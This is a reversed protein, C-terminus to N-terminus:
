VLAQILNDFKKAINRYSFIDQTEKLGQDAKHKILDQNEYAYRLKEKLQKVSFYVWKKHSFQPYNDMNNYLIFGEPEILTATHENAYEKCGSFNTVIIPVGLMMCQLGPLGFGEGLTPLVLCDFSKLFAPIAADTLISSEFVIPAANDSNINLKQKLNDIDKKAIKIKDTKLVLKVNDNRDFEQLWAEILLLHGKRKKWSGFFLFTFEKNQKLPIVNKNYCKEDLCHPIHYIPRTIGAERFIKKNFESPVIVANNTNLINIWHKPPNNAEYVGFGVSVSSKSKRSQLDPICHLFRIRADSKKNIMSKFLDYNDSCLGKSDPPCFPDLDITYKHLSLLSHIYDQSSQSYGTANLFSSYVIDSM